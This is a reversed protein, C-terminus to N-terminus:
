KLYAFVVLDLSSINLKLNVEVDETKAEECMVVSPDFFTRSDPQL